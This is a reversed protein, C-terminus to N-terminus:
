TLRSNVKFTTMIVLTHLSNRMRSMIAECENQIERKHKNQTTKDKRVEVEANENFGLNDVETLLATLAALLYGLLFLSITIFTFLSAKM